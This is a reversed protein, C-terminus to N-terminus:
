LLINKSLLSVPFYMGSGVIYINYIKRRFILNFMIYPRRLCLEPDSIPSQDTEGAWEGGEVTKGVRKRCSISNRNEPDSMILQKTPVTLFRAIVFYKIFSLIM